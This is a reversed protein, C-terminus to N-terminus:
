TSLSINFQINNWSNFVCFIMVARMFKCCALESYCSCTCSSPLKWCFKGDSHECEIQSKWLEVCLSDSFYENRTSFHISMSMYKINQLVYCKWAPDDFITLMEKTVSSHKFIIAWLKSAIQSFILQFFFLILTFIKTFPRMQRECHCYVCKV